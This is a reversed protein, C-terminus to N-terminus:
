RPSGRADARRADRPAPPGCWDSSLKGGRRPITYVNQSDYSIAYDVEPQPVLKATQGRM